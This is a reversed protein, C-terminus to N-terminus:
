KKSAADKEMKAVRFKAQELLASEDFTKSWSPRTSVANWWEALRKLSPDESVVKAVDVDSAPLLGAGAYLLLRGVSLDFLHIAALLPDALSPCICEVSTCM